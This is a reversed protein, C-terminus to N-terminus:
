TEAREPMVMMLCRQMVNHKSQSGQMGGKMTERENREENM